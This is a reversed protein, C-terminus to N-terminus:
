RGGLLGAIFAGALVLIFVWLWLKAKSKPPTLTGHPQDLALGKLQLLAMLRNMSGAYIIDLVQSPADAAVAERFRELDAEDDFDDEAGPYFFYGPEWTQQTGEIAGFPGDAAEMRRLLEGNSWHEIIECSATTQIAFSLVDCALDRSLARAYTPMGLHGLRPEHVILMRKAVNHVVIGYRTLVEPARSTDSTEIISCICTAM